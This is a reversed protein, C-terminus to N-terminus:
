NIVELKRDIVYDGNENIIKIFYIGSVLKLKNFLYPESSTLNLKDNFVVEGNSNLVVFTGKFNTKSHPFKFMFSGNSPNPFLQLSGFPNFSLISLFGSQSDDSDNDIGDGDIDDDYENLIGDGDIDNDESNVIGDGDVDDDEDNLIGDGDIDNPPNTLQFFITDSLWSCGFEDTAELWFYGNNEGQVSSGNGFFLGNYYWDINYQTDTTLITNDSVFISPTFNNDCKIVDIPFSSGDCGDSTTFEVHYTGSVEAIYTSQNADEIPEGNLYWQYTIINDLDVSLISLNEDYIVQPAPVDFVNITESDEFAQVVIIESSINYNGSACGTNFSHTGDTLNLTFTGLDDNGSFSLDTGDWWNEVDWISVSYPPNDMEFNIDWSPTESTIYDTEYVLFGDGDYIKIMIDPTGTCIEVGFITECFEEIDNGWCDSSSSSISFNNLSYNFSTVETNLTVTHLGPGYLQTPPFQQNSEFGNGFDWYYSVDYDDATILAEFDALVESCGSNPSYTFSANGGQGPNVTMPIDFTVLQDISLGVGVVTVNAQISVTIVYEGAVLPTGSFSACGYESESPLYIGTEDSLVYNLGLPIGTINTVIIEDLEVEFGSAEDAFQSPMYFTVDESYFEGVTGDPLILPCLTPFTPEITCETDVVCQSFLNFSFLLSLLFTIKKM